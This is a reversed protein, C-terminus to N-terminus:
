FSFHGMQLPSLMLLLISHVTSCRSLSVIALCLVESDVVIFCECRGSACVHARSVTQISRREVTRGLMSRTCTPWTSSNYIYKKDIRARDHIHFRFNCRCKKYALSISLSFFMINWKFNFDFIDLQKDTSVRHQTSWHIEWSSIILSFSLSWPILWHISDFLINVTLTLTISVRIFTKKENMRFFYLIYGLNFWFLYARGEFRLNCIWQFCFNSVFFYASYFLHFKFSLFCM